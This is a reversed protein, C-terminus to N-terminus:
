RRPFGHLRKQENLALLAQPSLAPDGRERPLRHVEEDNGRVRSDM